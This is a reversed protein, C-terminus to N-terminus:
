KEKLNEQILEKKEDKKKKKELYDQIVVTGVLALYLLLMFLASVWTLTGILAFILTLLTAGIYFGIDRYITAPLVQIDQNSNHVSIAVVLSCVFLGAGYLAGINYSIGGETDSAVIATIVDGAGNALALLTVAALAESLKLSETIFTIAPAVYEEITASIFNFILIIILLTLPIFIWLIEDLLCFYISYFNLFKESPACVKLAILSCKQSSYSPNFITNYNCALKTLPM